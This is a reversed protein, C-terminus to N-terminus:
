HESIFRHTLIASFGYLQFQFLCPLLSYSGRLTFVGNNQNQRSYNKKHIHDRTFSLERQPKEKRDKSIKKMRSNRPNMLESDRDLSLLPNRSKDKLPVKSKPKNTNINRITYDESKRETEEQLNVTVMLEYPTYRMGNSAERSEILATYKEGTSRLFNDRVNKSEFAKQEEDRLYFSALNTITKVRGYIIWRHQPQPVYIPM